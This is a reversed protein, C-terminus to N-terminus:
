GLLRLGRWKQLKRGKAVAFKGCKSSLFLFFIPFSQCSLLNMGCFQWNSHLLVYQPPPSFWVLWFDFKIKERLFVHFFSFKKELFYSLLSPVIPM